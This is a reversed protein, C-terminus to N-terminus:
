SALHAPEAQGSPHRIASALRALLGGIADAACRSVAERGPGAAALAPPTRYAGTLALVTTNEGAATLTLDADLVPFREGAPGATEWRLAVRACADGVALEGLQMKALRCSGPLPWVPVAQSLRTIGAAYTDRSARRLLEGSALTALRAQAAPFSIQLTVQVTIFVGDAWPGTRAPALPV